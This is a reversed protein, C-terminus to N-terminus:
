SLEELLREVMGGAQGVARVRWRYRGSPLQVVGDPMAPIMVRPHWM